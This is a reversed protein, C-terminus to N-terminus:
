KKLVKYRNVGEQTLIELLYLNAPLSELRLQTKEGEVLRYFSEEKLLQGNLTFLRLVASGKIAQDFQITLLDETPNPYVSIKMPLVEKKINTNTTPQTIISSLAQEARYNFGEVSFINAHNLVSFEEGFAFDDVYWGDVFAAQDSLFRFRIQINLGAFSRLDAKTQIYGESNGGFVERAGVPSNFGVVNNYGNEVMFPGLDIWSGISPDFIELFGGDWEAETNFSHWFYFFTSSDPTISPLTLTQDNEAGINPVFFAHTGTRPILTDLRWPENGIISSITYTNQTSDLNDRFIFSSFNATNNVRAKFSCSFVQGPTLNGLPFLIIGSNDVGGCNDSGPVFSINEPLTDRIYVNTLLTDTQNIVNLNYTLTDGAPVETKDVLKEMFLIKKCSQPIDFAEVNDTLSLPDRQEASFGLGRRAFVEWILCQNAGGHNIQDALLIADRIDVFESQCPQLKLGDIVLQIAMNNGGTGTHINPDFGYQDIFAWYMDWLMACLVAGIGHYDVGFGSTTLREVDGYTLPNINMNTSYPYERLGSGNPSQGLAYTAYGRSTAGTDGQKSTM